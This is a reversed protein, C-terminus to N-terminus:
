ALLVPPLLVDVARVAAAYVCLLRLIPIVPLWNSGLLLPVLQDAILAVGFSAPLALAATLRVARYFTARMLEVDAQLERLWPLVTASNEVQVRTPVTNIFMGVM